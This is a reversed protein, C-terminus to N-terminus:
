MYFGGIVFGITTITDFGTYENVFRFRKGDLAHRKVTWSTESIGAGIFYQPETRRYSLAYAPFDTFTSENYMVSSQAGSTWTIEDRHLIEVSKVGDPMNDFQAMIYDAGSGTGGISGSTVAGGSLNLGGITGAYIQYRFYGGGMDDYKLPPTPDIGIIVDNYIVTDSGSVATINYIGSELYFKARGFTDATHPNPTTTGIKDSFLDVLNNDLDRVTVAASPVTQGSETTTIFHDYISLTMQEGENYYTNNYDIDYERGNCAALILILATIITTKM